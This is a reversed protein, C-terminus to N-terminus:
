SYDNSVRFVAAASVLVSKYKNDKLNYDLLSLLFELIYKELIEEEEDELKDDKSDESNEGEEDEEEEDKNVM